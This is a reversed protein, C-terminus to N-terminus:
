ERSLMLLFTFMPESFVFWYVVVFSIRLITKVWFVNRTAGFKVSPFDSINLTRLILFNEMLVFKLIFKLSFSLVKLNIFCTEVSVETM